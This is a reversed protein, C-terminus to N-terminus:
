AGNVVGLTAVALAELAEGVKWAQRNRREVVNSVARIQAFPVDHMLCVYMFAAGEMSEIQPDWRERVAAISPEHGHVTNVTIGRVRPLRGLAAIDPPPDNVLQGRGLRADLRDELGLQHLTLFRNGDEAGLEALCDSVVHVVSGPGLSEDFSGCLGVNIALDYRGEALARSCWSATAVMGVGTALLHLERGNLAHEVLRHRLRRGAGLALCALEADTAAAILIRM